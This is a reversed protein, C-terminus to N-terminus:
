DSEIEYVFDGSSQSASTESIFKWKSGLDYRLKLTTIPEFLGIGYSVYLKPSLYKGITLAAQATDQGPATDISIEDVGIKSGFNETLYKGGTLALAMAAKTALSTEDDTSGNLPRGTTIYSLIDSQSLGHPDSFLEFQKIDSIPGKARVGTALNEDIVRVAEVDLGPKTIPGAFVIRGKRIVLDQGLRRFRGKEIILEGSANTINGPKEKILISGGLKADLGQDNFYVSEGMVLRIDATLPLPTKPALTPNVTENTPSDIIIQDKSVEDTSISRKEINSIKANPITLQGKIDWSENNLKIALNPTIDVVQNSKNLVRFDKGEINLHHTTNRLDSLTLTKLISHGTVKLSGQGSNATFALTSGASSDLQLDAQINALALEASNVKFKGNSFTLKSIFDPKSLTGAMNANFILQGELEDIPDILYDIPQMDSIVAKLQGQWDRNKLKKRSQPSTLKLYLEDKESLHAYADLDIADDKVLLKIKGPGFALPSTNLNTELLADTTLTGESINVAIFMEPISKGLSHKISINADILNSFMDAKQNLDNLTNLPLQTIDLNLKLNLNHHSADFCLNTSESPVKRWCHKNVVQKELSVQSLAPKTLKWINENSHKFMGKYLNLEWDADIYSGKWNLQAQFINSDASLALDHQEKNGSANLAVKDLNIDKFRINKLTSNLLFESKPDVSINANATFAALTLEEWNLDSATTNLQVAPAQIPGTIKGKSSLSGRGGPLLHSLDPIDLHWSAHAHDKVRATLKLQADGLRANLDELSLYVQQKKIKDLFDGDLNVPLSAIATASVNLPYKRIQGDLTLNSVNLKVTDQLKTFNAVFEANVKGPIMENYRGTDINVAKLEIKANPNDAYDIYGKAMLKSGTSVFLGSNLYFKREEIHGSIDFHSDGIHASILDGNMNLKLHDLTGIINMNGKPSSLPKEKELPWHLNRWNLNLNINTKQNTLSVFGDANLAAQYKLSEILLGNINFQGSSYKIDSSINFLDYKESKITASVRSTLHELNGNFKTDISASLPLTEPNFTTSQIHDIHLSGSVSSQPLDIEILNANLSAHNILPSIELSLKTNYPEKVSTQVSIENINGSANISANAQPFESSTADLNGSAQFPYPFQTVLNAKLSANFNPSVVKTIEINSYSQHIVGRLQLRNILHKEGGTLVSLNKVSIGTLKVNIPINLSKPLRIKKDDDVSEKESLTLSLDSITINNIELNNNMLALLNWNINLHGAQINSKGSWSLDYIDLNRALTGKLSGITLNNPFHKKAHVFAWYTGTETYAVMSILATTLVTVLLLFLTCRIFIKHMIKM